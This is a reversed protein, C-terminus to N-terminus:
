NIGPVKSYAWRILKYTLYLAEFALEFVIIALITGLPLIMALPAIYSSISAISAAVESNESVTGFFRFIAVISNVFLFITNLFLDLLM